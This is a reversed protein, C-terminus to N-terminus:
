SHESWMAMQSPHILHFYSCGSIERRASKKLVAEFESGGDVQIAKVLFPMRKELANLFHVATVSTAQRHVERVDWRSIVDWATVQKLVIGPLPRINLTDLQVM